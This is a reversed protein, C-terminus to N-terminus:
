ADDSRRWRARRSRRRRPAHNPASSSRWCRARRTTRTPSRSDMWGRVARTSYTTPANSFSFRHVRDPHTPAPTEQPQPRPRLQGPWGASHRDRRGRRPSARLRAPLADWDDCAVLQHRDRIATRLRQLHAANPLLTAIVGTPTRTETRRSPHIGHAVLKASTDDSGHRNM